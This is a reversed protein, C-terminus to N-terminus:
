DCYKIIKIFRLKKNFIIKIKPHNIFKELIEKSRDTSNDDVIIIEINKYTQSLVSRISKEIFESYNFNTIYLTVM